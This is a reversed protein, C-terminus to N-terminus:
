LVETLCAHRRRPRLHRHAAHLTIQAVWMGAPALALQTRALSQNWPVCAVAHTHAIYRPCWIFPTVVDM